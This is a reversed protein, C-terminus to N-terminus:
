KIRLPARQATKAESPQMLSAAEGDTMLLRAKTPLRSTTQALVYCGTAAQEIALQLAESFVCPQMDFSRSIQVACGQREAEETIRSRTFQEIVALKSPEPHRM